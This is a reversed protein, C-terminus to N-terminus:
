IENVPPKDPVALPLEMVSEPFVPPPVPPPIGNWIEPFV